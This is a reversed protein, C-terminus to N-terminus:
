KHTQKTTHRAHTWKGFLIGWSISRVTRSLQRIWRDPRQVHKPHRLDLCGSFKLCWELTSTHQIPHGHLDFQLNIHLHSSHSHTSPPFSSLPFFGPHNSPAWQALYETISEIQPTQPTLSPVPFSPFLCLNATHSCLCWIVNQTTECDTWLHLRGLYALLHMRTYSAHYTHKHSHSYILLHKSVDHMHRLYM